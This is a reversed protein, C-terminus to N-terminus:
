EPLFEADLTQELTYSCTAPFTEEALNTEQVALDIGDEYGLQFAELLFSRLSPNEELHQIIRRRQEKITSRWSNCRHEPQYQWKLLHGLLIKFRSRLEQRERKGLSEVEEVLNEIDLEAWRGTRLCQAQEKTWAYFDTNYSTM